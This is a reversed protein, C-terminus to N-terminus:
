AGRATVAITKAPVTQQALWAQVAEQLNLHLTLDGLDIGLEVITQAVEPRVGVLAVHAGLLRVASATQMVIQAVDTDIQPVGTVDIIVRQINGQEVNTLVNATFHGAREHDLRGILPAVLVGPLVPLVPASMQQLAITKTQLEQLTRSLVEERAEVSQLAAALETTREAVTAELSGRLQELEHERAQTQKLSSRLSFGFRDLFLGITGVVIVFTTLFASDNSSQTQAFGIYQPAYREAALITAVIVISACIVLVLSKRGTLLGVLVIPVELVFVTAINSRIGTAVLSGGVIAVLVFTYTVISATFYGRRVLVMTVGVTFLVLGYAVTAVIISSIDKSTIITLPLGVATALISALYFLQLMPAQQREIPDDLQVSELWTRLRQWM